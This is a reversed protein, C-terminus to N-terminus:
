TPTHFSAKTTVRAKIGGFNRLTMLRGINPFKSVKERSVGALIAIGAASVIGGSGITLIWSSAQEYLQQNQDYSM